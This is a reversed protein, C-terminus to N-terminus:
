SSQERIRKAQFAPQRLSCSCCAPAATSLFTIHLHPVFVFSIGHAPLSKCKRWSNPDTWRTLKVAETSRNRNADPPLGLLFGPLDSLSSLLLEHYKAPETCFQKGLGSGARGGAEQVSEWGFMQKIRSPESLPPQTWVQNHQHMYEPLFTFAPLPDNPKLTAKYIGSM